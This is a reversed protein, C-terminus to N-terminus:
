YYIYNTEHSDEKQNIIKSSKHFTKIEKEYKYYLM